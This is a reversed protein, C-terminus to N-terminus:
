LWEREPEMVNTGSVTYVPTLGKKFRSLNSEMVEVWEKQTVEYKGMYFPKSM